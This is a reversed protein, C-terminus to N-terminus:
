WLFEYIAKRVHIGNKVQEYILSKEAYVLEEDIDVNRNVPGPHMYLKVKEYREKTLGFQKFYSRESPVYNEKQREKQLRLWVVVDAWPLAEDLERFVKEVGLAETNRPILTAPGCVGVRAGFMRLLFAGSRFVRSHKIDGVYLVRLGKIEGFREMLTFLDILAQSPHQHTGDGANILRLNLSRTLEDYPFLVFPVRFVVYDYGLAELTKLTDYFSEGKVSSSESHTVNYTQIGLSRASKEFSLRTRTSPEAFFFLASADIRKSRGEKYARALRLIEEVEERKLDRVSILSKM